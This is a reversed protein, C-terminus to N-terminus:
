YTQSKQGCSNASECATLDVLVPVDKLSWDFCNLVYEFDAFGRYFTFKRPLRLVFTDSWATVAPLPATSSRPGLAALRTSHLDAPKSIPPTVQPMSLHKPSTASADATASNAQTLTRFYQRIKDAAAESIWSSHTKKETIGIAPLYDIVHKAKVGLERCLENIRVGESRGPNSLGSSMDM